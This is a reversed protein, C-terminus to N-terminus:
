VPLPCGSNADSASLTSLELENAFPLYLGSEKFFLAALITEAVGLDSNRKLHALCMLVDSSICIQRALCKCRQCNFQPESSYSSSFFSLLLGHSTDHACRGQCDQLSTPNNKVKGPCPASLKEPSPLFVRVDAPDTGSQLVVRPPLHGYTLWISAECWYAVAHVPVENALAAHATSM